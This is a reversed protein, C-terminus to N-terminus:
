AIGSLSMPFMMIMQAEDLGHARMVTIYLRLHIRPCGIGTYREIDPMRFDAPLRAVPAGDTDDWVITEDFVRMQRMERELRDLRAFPDESILTPVAAPPPVARAQGHLVYPPPHLVSQSPPPHPDPQSSPPPPPPTSDFHLVEQIPVQRAQQGDVRLNLSTIAEQMAAMAAMLQDVTSAPPDMDTQDIARTM